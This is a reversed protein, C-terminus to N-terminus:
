RGVRHAQPREGFDGVLLHLAAEFRDVADPLDAEGATARAFDLDHDIHLLQVRVAQRDILYAVRHLLLVDFNGAPQEFLPLRRKRESRQPADIGGILELVDDDRGDIRRRDLDRVDAVGFVGGLAGRAGHPEVVSLRRHLDVQAPRRAFVRDLHGLRHLLLEFADRLRQRFAHRQREDAVVRSEDVRRDGRELLM